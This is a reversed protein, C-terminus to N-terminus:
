DLITFARDVGSLELVRRVGSSPRSLTVPGARQAVLLARLGRSDVFSVGSMELVLAATGAAHLEAIRAELEGVTSLDLEGAVILEGPGIGDRVTLLEEMALVNARRGADPRELDIL